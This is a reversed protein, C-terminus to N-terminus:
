ATKVEPEAGQAMGDGLPLGRPLTVTFATGVGWQSDVAITGGMMDVLRQTIALGLGTGEHSRADGESQQRFETFLDPLFDDAIGIGTDIVRLVLVDADGDLEVTVGGEETFKIANGVLNTLIRGVADPDLVAPLREAGGVEVGLQLGRRDALPRLLAVEREVHEIVEVPMPHLPEREADLRAIDLVSNLTALLRQGGAEIAEVLGRDEPDVEEMLLEAFGIVATLPTRIEHSMSALFASKVRAAEEAEERAAILGREYSRRTGVDRGLSLVRTTGNLSIAQSEFELLQERGCPTVVHLDVRSNGTAAVRAAHQRAQAGDRRAVIDFMSPIPAGEPLGLLARASSNVEVNRGDLDHVFVADSARDVLTRYRSESAQLAAVRRRVQLRLAAALGLALLFSAGAGLAAWRYVSASIGATWLDAPRRPYIQYSDVYPAARDYQGVVGTVHVHDGPELDEFSLPEPQGDFAFVAVLSLDDLSILLARGASVQSQGVVVGEAEVLQGELAEADAAVYPVPAPVRPAADIRRLGTPELYTTGHRFRVTGTVRLSDGARVTPASTLVGDRLEIGGTAGQLYLGSTASGFTGRDVSARGAVTVTQGVRDPVRDGDADVRVAALSQTPQASPAAGVLASLVLVLPALRM